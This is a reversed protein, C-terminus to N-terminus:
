EGQQKSVIDFYEFLWYKGNIEVVIDDGYQYVKSGIISRNAQLHETPLGYSKQPDYTTESEIEGIFVLQGEIDDFSLQKSTDNYLMENVCIFPAIDAPIPSNPSRFYSNIHLGVIISIVIAVSAAITAYKRWVPFVRERTETNDQIAGVILDDDIEGIIFALRPVNM